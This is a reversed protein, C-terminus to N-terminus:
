SGLNYGGSGAATVARRLIDSTSVGTTLGVVRVIGGYRSVERGEPPFRDSTPDASYDGGKVYLAPRIDRVLELATDEDFVAVWDVAALAAVVEAREEQSVLPRGPGKLRRVSVDSNIGVALADGNARAEELYRV